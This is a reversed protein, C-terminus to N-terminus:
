IKSIIIGLVTGIILLALPIWFKWKWNKNDTKKEDVCKTLENIRDEHQQCPFEEVKAVLKEVGSKLYEMDSKTEGRFEKFEGWFKGTEWNAKYLRKRDEESFGMKKNKM